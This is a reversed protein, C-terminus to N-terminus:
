GHFDHQIRSTVLSGPAWGSEVLTCLPFLLLSVACTRFGICHRVRLMMGARVSRMFSLQKDDQVGVEPSSRLYFYLHDSLAM